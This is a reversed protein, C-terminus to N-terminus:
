RRIWEFFTRGSRASAKSAESGCSIACSAGPRIGASGGDGPANGPPAEPTARAGSTRTRTRTHFCRIHRILCILADAEIAASRLNWDLQLLLRGDTDPGRLM